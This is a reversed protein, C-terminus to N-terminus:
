ILKGKADQITQPLGDELTTKPKWDLSLLKNCNSYTGFQDGLIAGINNVPLELNLSKSISAILDKVTTKLGCGVNFIENLTNKKDEIALTLANVIDDIYIFDRYRELSGTVDIKKNKIAQTVFISLMGQKMNELDQGPGYVNFLRFITYDIGRNSFLQIYKEASIKSVGYNSKPNPEFKECLPLESDGYVAMSSTFILKVNGIEEALRCINLTGKVNTDVDLEPQEHSILGSTQSALHFIYTYKEKIFGEIQEYSSIDVNFYNVNNVRGSINIQEELDFVDITYKTSLKMALATGIFGAGGTILIKMNKRMILNCVVTDSHSNNRHLKGQLSKRWTAKVEEQENKNVKSAQKLVKIV